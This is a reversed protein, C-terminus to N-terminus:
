CRNLFREARHGERFGNPRSRAIARRRVSASPGNVRATPPPFELELEGAQYESWLVIAQLLSPACLDLPLAPALLPNASGAQHSGRRRQWQRRAPRADDKCTKLKSAHGGQRHPSVKPRANRSVRLRSCALALWPSWSVSGACRTWVGHRPPGRMGRAGLNDGISFRATTGTADHVANKKRDCGRTSGCNWLRRRGPSSRLEGHCHGVLIRGNVFDPAM